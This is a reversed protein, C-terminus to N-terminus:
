DRETKLTLEGYFPEFYEYEGWNGQFDGIKYGSKESCNIVTGINHATFLVYIEEGSCTKYYGIYPYKQTNKIREKRIQVEISM